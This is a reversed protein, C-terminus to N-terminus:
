SNLAAERKRLYAQLRPDMIKHWLPPIMALPVMAGYGAPLQPSDPHSRLLQYPRRAYRHHDPHRQLNLLLWNTFLWNADWSHEPGVPEFRGDPRRERRLGYHEIYSVAELNSVAVYAQAFFFVLGARGFAAWSAVAILVSLAYWWLLANHPSWLTRGQRALRQKQLRWGKLFNGRLAHMFFVYFSQGARATVPDDDTAVDVHHGYVHEIPYTGYCVTSMLMGGAWQEFHARRHVLEHASKIAIVGSMVGCSIVWGLQGYWAFGANVFAWAGFILSAIQLPLCALPIARYWWSQAAVSPEPDSSDAGLAREAIPVSIFVIALTFWAFLNPLATLRGLWWSLPILGAPLLSLAFAIGHPARKMM